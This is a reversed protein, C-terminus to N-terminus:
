MARKLIAGIRPLFEHGKGGLAHRDIQRPTSIIDRMRWAVPPPNAPWDNELSTLVRGPVRVMTAPIKNWSAEMTVYEIRINITKERPFFSIVALLGSLHNVVVSTNTIIHIIVLPTYRVISNNCPQNPYKFM